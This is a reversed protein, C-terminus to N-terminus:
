LRSAGGGGGGTGGGYLLSHIQTGRSSGLVGELLTAMGASDTVNTLATGDSHTDPEHSYITVYELIGPDIMGNGNLDKENADLVGNRNVDENILLDMTAGYVLRLEDVTEFPSHK